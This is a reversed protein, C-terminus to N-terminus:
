VTVAAEVDDVQCWGAADGSEGAFVHQGAVSRAHHACRRRGVTRRRAAAGKAGVGSRTTLSWKRRTEPLFTTARQGFDCCLVGAHVPSTRTHGFARGVDTLYPRQLGASTARPRRDEAALRRGRGKD